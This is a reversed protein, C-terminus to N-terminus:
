VVYFFWSGKELYKTADSNNSKNQGGSEPLETSAASSFSSGERPCTNPCILDWRFREPNRQCQNKVASFIRLKNDVGFLLWLLFFNLIICYIFIHTYRDISFKPPPFWQCSKFVHFFFYRLCLHDLIRPVSPFNYKTIEFVLIVRVWFPHILFVHSFNFLSLPVRFM